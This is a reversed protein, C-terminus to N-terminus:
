NIRSTGNGVESGWFLHGKLHGGTYSFFLPSSFWAATSRFRLQPACSRVPAEQTLRPATVTLHRVGAEHVPVTCPLRQAAKGWSRVKLSEDTLNDQEREPDWLGEERHRAADMLRNILQEVQCGRGVHELCFGQDKLHSFM